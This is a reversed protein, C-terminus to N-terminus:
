SLCSFYEEQKLVIKREKYKKKRKVKNGEVKKELGFV